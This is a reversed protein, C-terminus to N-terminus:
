GTQRAAAGPGDLGPRVGAHVRSFRDVEDTGGGGALGGHGKGERFLDAALDDGDIGHLHIATQVDARRLRRRVLPSADRM